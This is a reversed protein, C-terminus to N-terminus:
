CEKGVRREESREVIALNVKNDDIVLIRANPATFSSNYEEHKNFVKQYRTNFDTMPSADVIEQTLNFSFKSGQGYESEIELQSDMLKVLSM